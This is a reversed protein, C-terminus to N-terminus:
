IRKKVNGTIELNKLTSLYSVVEDTNDVDFKSLLIETACTQCFYVEVTGIDKKVNYHQRFSFCFQVINNFENFIVNKVLKSRKYIRVSYYFTNM